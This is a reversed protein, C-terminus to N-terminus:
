RLQDVKASELFILCGALLLHLLPMASSSLLISISSRTALSRLFFTSRCSPTSVESRVTSFLSLTSCCVCTFCFYHNAESAAFPSCPRPPFPTPFVSAVRRPLMPVRRGLSPKLPAQRVSSFPKARTTILKGQHAFELSSIAAHTLLINTIRLM